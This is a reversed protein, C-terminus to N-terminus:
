ETPHANLPIHQTRLRFIMVKDERKLNNNPDKKNPTPMHAFMSRGKNSMAWNNLRQIKNNSRIIQKATDLSVPINAQESEAGKKALTDARENGPIECHSPIWQLTVEIEFEQIFSSLTKTISILLPTNQKENELAQLVSMSDTFVVVNQISEKSLTFQQQLHHIPAEIALAEAKYNSCLAGCPNFFEETTKDTYEIRVGYGANITGKFASGDTYVQTWNDPYEQVTKLGAVM